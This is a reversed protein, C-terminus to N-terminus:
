SSRRFMIKKLYSLIYQYLFQDKSLILLLVYISFGVIIQFLTGYITSEFLNGSYFTIIFMIFGFILYKLANKLLNFNPIVKRIYHLEVILILLEATVSAIAAGTTKFIPILIANLIVNIVSGLIVALIYKNQQKTPVLFQIGIVNNLGIIIILPSLIYVLPIVALYDTGYFWPVFYKIIACIGFTLAAGGLWIFNIVKKLYSHLQKYDKKQFSYSMRSIMVTGVTTILMLITKVIYTAQEYFSVNRIDPLIFGIMTKDLVTYILSAVQPIFFAIVPKLHKKLSLSNKKPRKVLNHINIWFSLNTLLTMSSFLFIYLGLDTPKKIWIFISILYLLKIILNRYAIGKFQEIGQYFWTIDFLNAACYILFIQYYISYKSTVLSFIGLLICSFITSIIRISFLEWFVISRKEPDDQVYAIERQGYTNIGLAAVLFFVTVISYTYGYIGLKEAGLVRTLYPTTFFPILALVLQYILNYVYNTTISQKKM